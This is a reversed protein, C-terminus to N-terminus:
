NSKMLLSATRSRSQERLMNAMETCYVGTGPLLSDRRHLHQRHLPTQRRMSTSSFTQLEVPFTTKLLGWNWLCYLLGVSPAPLDHAMAGLCVGKWKAASACRKTCYCAQHLVWQTHTNGKVIWLGHSSGRHRCHGGGGRRRTRSSTAALCLALCNSTKRIARCQHPCADRQYSSIISVASLHSSLTSAWNWRRTQLHTLIHM